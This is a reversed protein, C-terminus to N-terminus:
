EASLAQRITSELRDDVADATQLPVERVADVLGGLAEKLEEIPSKGPKPEDGKAATLIEGLAKGNAEAAGLVDLLAGLIVTQQRYVAELLARDSMARVDVVEGTTPDTVENAM